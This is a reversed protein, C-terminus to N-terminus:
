AIKRVNSQLEYFFAWVCIGLKIFLRRINMRNVKHLISVKFIDMLIRVWTVDPTSIRLFYGSNKMRIKHIYHRWEISRQYYNMSWKTLHFFHFIYLVFHLKFKEITKDVVIWNQHNDVAIYCQDFNNLTCM